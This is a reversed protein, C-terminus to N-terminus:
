SSESNKESSEDDKESSEDDENNKMRGVVTLVVNNSTNVYKTGNPLILDSLDVSDGINLDAVDLKVSNVIYKPLCTLTIRKKVINLNGGKKIGICRDINIIDLNVQIHLPVDNSVFRFDVHMLKESVPHVQVDYTIALFSLKGLSINFISSFITGQSYHKFFENYSVSFHLINKNINKGYVVCPIMDHMRLLRASGKGFKQRNEVNLTSFM